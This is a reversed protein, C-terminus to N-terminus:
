PKESIREWFDFPEEDGSANLSEIRAATVDALFQLKRQERQAAPAFSLYLELGKDRAKLWNRQSERLNQVRDKATKSLKASYADNLKKDLVDFRAKLEAQSALSGLPEACALVQSKATSVKRLYSTTEFKKTGTNFCIYCHELNPKDGCLLGALLRSSDSSWGAFFIMACGENCGAKVLKFRTAERWVREQFDEFMGVDKPSTRHYFAADSLCSGVHYPAFIWEDNPSFDFEDPYAWDGLIQVKPLKARQASDKGSVVWIVEGTREIRVAGSPSICVVDAKEKGEVTASSSEEAPTAQPTLGDSPGAAVRPGENAALVSFGGSIACAAIAVLVRIARIIVFHTLGLVSTRENLRFKHFEHRLNQPQDADNM